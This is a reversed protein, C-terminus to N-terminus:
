MKSQNFNMIAHNSQNITLTEFDILSSRIQWAKTFFIKCYWNNKNAAFTKSAERQKFILITTTM